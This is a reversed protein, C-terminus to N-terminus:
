LLYVIFYPTDFDIFVVMGFARSQAQANPTGAYVERVDGVNKEWNLRNTRFLPPIEHTFV